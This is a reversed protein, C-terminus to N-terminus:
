SRKMFSSTDKESMWGCLIYFTEQHEQVCAAVKRVDFNTSLANLAAQASLIASADGNLLDQIAQHCDNLEEDIANLQNKLDNHLKQPTGYYYDKKLYIREFHMSSFVADVQEM